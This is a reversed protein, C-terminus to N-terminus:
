GARMRYYSYLSAYDKSLVEDFKVGIYSDNHWMITYLKNALFPEDYNDYKIIGAKGAMAQGPKADLRFQAGGTSINVLSAQYKKGEIDLLCDFQESHKEVDVRQYQRKDDAAQYAM